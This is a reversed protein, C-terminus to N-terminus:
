FVEYILVLQNVPVSVVTEALASAENVASVLLILAALMTVLSVPSNKKRKTPATFQLSNNKYQKQKEIVSSEWEM